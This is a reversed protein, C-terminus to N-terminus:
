KDVMQFCSVNRHFKAGKISLTQTAVGGDRSLFNYSM